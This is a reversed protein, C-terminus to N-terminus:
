ATRRAKSREQQPHAIWQKALYEQSGMEILRSVTRDFAFVEDMHSASKEVSSDPKGHGDPRFIDTPAAAASAFLKVRHEYLTDILTIFRRVENRENMSLLPVNDIFMTPFQQAIVMYDSAGLPKACLDEFSFWAVGEGLVARPVSVRRGQTKLTHQVPTEDKSLTRFVDELQGKAQDIHDIGKGTGPALWTKGVQSGVLRYDVPSDIREVACRRQIEEICPIFLERQLGNKYLDKPPRNSTAVMVIGARVIIHRSESTTTISCGLSGMDAFTPRVAGEQFMCEFLRQMIM